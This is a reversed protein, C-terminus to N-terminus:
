MGVAALEKELKAFREIYDRIMAKQPDPVYLGKQKLYNTYRESAGLRDQLIRQKDESAFYADAMKYFRVKHFKSHIHRNHIPVLHCPHRLILAISLCLEEEKWFKLYEYYKHDVSVARQFDEYIKKNTPIKMASEHGCIWLPPTCLQRPLITVWEWDLIGQIRLDDDVLINHGRLDGHWLAFSQANPPSSCCNSLLDAVSDLAFIEHMATEEIVDASPIDFYNVLMDYHHRIVATTSNSGSALKPRVGTQVQLDNEVSYLSPGIVSIADDDGHPYLSGAKPFQLEHLQALISAFDAYFQNRKDPTASCLADLQLPQGTLHDM